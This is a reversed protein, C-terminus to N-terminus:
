GHNSSRIQEFPVIQLNSLNHGPLLAIILKIHEM